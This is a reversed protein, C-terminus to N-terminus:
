KKSAGFLSLMDQAAAQMDWGNKILFVLLIIILVVILFSFIGSVRAKKSM